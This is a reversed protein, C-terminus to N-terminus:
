AEATDILQRAWRGSAWAAPIGLPLSWWLATVPAIEPLGIRHGILGVLFLNIAVAPAAFPYLLVALKWV